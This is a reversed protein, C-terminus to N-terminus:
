LHNSRPIYIWCPTFSISTPTSLFLPQFHNEMFYSNLIHFASFKINPTPNEVLPLCNITPSMHCWGSKKSTRLSWRCPWLCWRKYLLRGSTGDVRCYIIMLVTSSPLCWRSLRLHHSADNVRGYIIPSMMKEVASSPLCPRSLRLHYSADDVRVYIIPSMM